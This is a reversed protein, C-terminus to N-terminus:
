PGGRALAECSQSPAPVAIDSDALANFAVAAAREAATLCGKLEPLAAAQRAVHAATADRYREIDDASAGEATIVADLTAEEFGAEALRARAEAVQDARVAAARAALATDAGATAVQREAHAQRAEVAAAATEAAAAREIRRDADIRAVVAGAVLVVLAVRLAWRRRM